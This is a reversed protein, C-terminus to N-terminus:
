AIKAKLEAIEAAQSKVIEHLEQIAKSLTATLFSTDIGQYVPKGEADVADKEGTVCDPVVAQLEHAIFGQGESGDAKWTYTVPNLQAVVDLANQMPQINEKLRYDSSTNYATASSTVSITGVVANSRRLQVVEGDSTTRNFLGAYTGNATCYVQGSPNAVVGVDVSTTTTKGVLLNGSSDIRMRETSNTSFTMNANSAQYLSADGSNGYKQIYFYDAGSANAGDADWVVNVARSTATSSPTAYIQVGANNAATTDATRFNAISQQGSTGVAVELRYAPSSTGIGVNGSSDIRMREGGDNSLKLVNNAKVTIDTGDNYIYGISAGGSGFSLISNSTGNITISGRNAGTNLATTGGVVLNGSADLTMAQTFTIATGATGSPATSWAHEGSANQYYRTAYGDTLYINQASNVYHNRGVLMSGAANQFVSGTTGIQMARSTSQWASPTVGLGLNGSSDIRMREANNTGFVVPQSVNTGIAFPYSPNSSLVKAASTLGFHSAGTNQGIYIESVSGYVRAYQTTATGDGVQFKVGPSSTGIGVNGSSDIRMRETNGTLFVLPHSTETGIQASTTGDIKSLLNITTNRLYQEVTGTTGLYVDLKKLPSSTGIGLKFDGTLVFGYRSGDHAGLLYTSANPAGQLYLGYGNTSNTNVIKSAWDGAVSKSVHLPASPSSTGIGLNGSADLTMAQTFTIAAGATGSPANFWRHQGAGHAYLTAFGDAIYNAAWGNSTAVANSSLSIPYTASSAVSGNATFQIARQAASWASPTVGLGLNGSSDIRLRETEATGFTLFELNASAGRVGRIWASQNATDTTSVFFGLQAYDNATTSSRQLTLGSGNASSKVQVSNNPTSTGIGVNGAFYNAATGSAYINWKNSGSSVASTIGYNNTAGTLDDILLGYQNTITSGAGASINGAYFAGANALTFAAAATSAIPRVGYYSGTSTSPILTNIVIGRTATGTRGSADVNIAYSASGAGGVGMYGNVTVTDTSANGLTTNGTNTFDAVGTVNDSDDIIVGSNQIIKGTTGDFRTVANDTASAPGYVDGSAATSWSLVGSGDTVLAQGADGDTDPWTLTYSAPVTAPAQMAVYQGGSADQLRLDGQATIDVQTFVGTSPTTAGISTADITGGNIDATTAVLSAITATGDIYLNRWSNGATGLDYTNDASPNVDSAFRATATITDSTANGLTTNGDVTLNGTIHGNIIQTVCANVNTGDCFLFATDGAAVAIGTGSATKLTVQYAANNQLVFLKTRAPCIIEGAASLATGGSGTAAVLMACRAEDTTGNATTLTHSNATWTNITALGAIAEEVMSTINDNVVDGWTGNLEGTVPLALQLIPTYQTTM